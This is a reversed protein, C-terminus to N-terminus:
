NARMPPEGHVFHRLKSGGLQHKLQRALRSCFDASHLTVNFSNGATIADLRRLLQDRPGFPNLPVGDLHTIVARDSGSPLAHPSSPLSKQQSKNLSHPTPQHLYAPVTAPLNARHAPSKLAVSDITLCDFPQRILFKTGRHFKIGLGLKSNEPKVLTFVMMTPNSRLLLPIQAGPMIGTLEYLESTWGAVWVKDFLEVLAVHETLLTFSFFLRRSRSLADRFLRDTTANHQNHPMLISPSANLVDYQSSPACLVDYHASVPSQLFSTPATETSQEVSPMKCSSSSSPANIGSTEGCPLLSCHSHQLQGDNACLHDYQSRLQPSPFANLVEYHSLDQSPSLPIPSKPIRPVTSYPNAKSSQASPRPTRPPLPPPMVAQLREDGCGNELSKKDESIPEDARKEDSVSSSPCQEECPLSSIQHENEVDVDFQPPTQQRLLPMTDNLCPTRGLSLPTTALASYDLPIPSLPMRPPSPGKGGGCNANATTRSLPSQQPPSTSLKDDDNECSRGALVVYENTPRPWLTPVSGEEEPQDGGNESNLFNLRRLTARLIDVWQVREEISPALLELVPASGDVFGIALCREEGIAVNVCHCETLDQSKLPQREFIASQEAYWELRPTPGNAASHVSLVVFLENEYFIKKKRLLTGNRYIKQQLWGKHVIARQPQPTTGMQANVTINENEQRRQRKICLLLLNASHRGM